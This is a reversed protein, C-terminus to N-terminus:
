LTSASISVRATGKPKNVLYSVIVESGYRTEASVLGIFMKPMDNKSVEGFKWKDAFRVKLMGVTSEFLGKAGEIDDGEYLIADFRWIGDSYHWIDCDQWGSPCRHTNYRINGDFDRERESTRNSPFGSNAGIAISKVALCFDGSDSAAIWRRPTVKSSQTQVRVRWMGSILNSFQSADWEARGLRDRNKLSPWPDRVVVKQIQPGSPSDIYTAATLLVAHGSNQGSRYGVLIPKGQKLEHVVQQAAVAGPYFEATVKYEDNDSDIGWGNLNNTISQFSGPWDPLAGYPDTGYTRFVIQEQSVSVKHFSLVSQICAAWCWQSMNQKAFITDLADSPIGVWKVSQPPNGVQASAVLPLGVFVLTFVVALTFKSEIRFM